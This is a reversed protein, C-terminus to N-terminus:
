VREEIGRAAATPRGLDALVVGAVRHGSVLAGQISATDRHDGALYVGAAVRAPSTRRLPVPQAPLAHPIDDRRILEWGGPGVGFVEGAQGRVANEPVPGDPGLLATVQLLHRGAPAYTPVANSIVAANVMPGRRRGDVAVMTSATPPADAAFWWTVLGKTVPGPLGTLAPAQDPGVAVVVARAAVPDGDAPHVLVGPGAPRIADVSVGTRITVGPHEQARAALWEPLARIGRAPLGPVGLAFTRVLLRVFADSTEGTAEALVGALFPEIVERRLPGRVGARDLGRSWTSDAGTTARVPAALVPGAWRALGALERPTLLGSALTARLGGPHRLPHTLAVLRQERRVLLGPGFRRLDLAGVDVGRAVAPYAPNLVQFGRDLLFGDVEDTRQRGGVVDERELVLVSCGASGLREACRLGALGAGVVVVDADVSSVM